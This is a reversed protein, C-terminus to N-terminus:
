EEGEQFEELREFDNWKKKKFLRKLIKNSVREYLFDNIFRIM